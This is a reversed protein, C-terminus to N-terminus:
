NGSVVGVIQSQIWSVSAFTGRMWLLATHNADWKPVIPRINDLTSRQTIPVWQFTAGNDCTVGQFIEHKSLNTKNDRPDITTSIYIVHPNDPHLAGLGTYDQESSYLNPGAKALYTAKWTTGDFRLYIFRLDPSESGYGTVRATGIIAVVGDDYRVIDANWARELKLGNLTSGTAFARTYQDISKASGEVTIGAVAEDVVSGFSNYIRGSQVYGHWLNNDYDRPHAETGVFDVRDKGNGWYKYYGANPNTIPTSTLRGFYNWTAGDDTSALFNPNNDVSRAVNYLRSEASMYWLNSYTIGHTSDGNSTCGQSAWDFAKQASWASGDYISYYSNCDIRHGAWMAVYKGDPRVVFAPANFEDVILNGLATPAQQSDSAFDYVVAEINGNRPGNFAVSGVILKGRVTDVVVREDQHWSWAGDDNFQILTGAVANSAGSPAAPLAPCSSSQGATSSGGNANMGGTAPIGGTAAIVAAGGTTPAGSAASGGTVSAGGQTPTAGGQTSPAGGLVSIASTGGTPLTGGTASAGGVTARGGIGVVSLTVLSGGMAVTGGMTTIGGTAPNVGIGGTTAHAGGDFEAKGGAGISAAGADGAASGPSGHRYTANDSHCGGVLLSAVILCANSSCGLALPPEVQTVIQHDQAM